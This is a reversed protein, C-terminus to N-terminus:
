VPAADLLQVIGAVPVSVWHPRHALEYRLEYVAKELEFIRLLKGVTDGQPLIGSSGMVELYSTLFAERARAEVEGDAVKAIRAAYTFSRLMGAVDRLPSSKQRRQPLARAPEGEFDVIAWEGGSWLAQGLHLDGHNRIRRGVSGISSLGRLLERVAEGQGAIPSLEDCEPLSSFVEDIEDDVTATLLALAEASVEEPAFAPDASDSALVRHLEGIVTGLSHVRALFEDPRDGLEALALTWGDVADPVLEQVIGLTTGLSPGSYSWWGELRPAHAYKHAGLFRLMELEPNTGAELRRYVKVILADDVIVSSNSQELEVPRVEVHGGLLASGEPSCFEIVGDSTGLEGRLRLLAFLQEVFAPDPVADRPEPAPDRRTVLEYIEHDSAGYSVEVLTELLDPGLAGEDIVRAGAIERSKAGYWRQGRLHGILAAEDLSTLTLATM